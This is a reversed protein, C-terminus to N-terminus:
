HGKKDIEEQLALKYGIISMEIRQMGRVQDELQEQLDKIQQLYDMALDTIEDKGNLKKGEPTEESHLQELELEDNYENM